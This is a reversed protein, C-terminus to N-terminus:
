SSIKQPNGNQTAELDKLITNVVTTAFFESAFPKAGDSRLFANIREQYNIFENESMAKLFMYVSATDKFRRRDIFCDAPIHKEINNAGWYVPVCGSFFCDFIKETIYGPLERVNEYCIAFRTDALVPKKHKLRGRYSPFPRSPIIRKIVKWLHREIRGKLGTNPVPMDWDTGYLDFDQPKNREFWRIAAVREAYLIRKDRSELTRNGAILCCFRRRGSFGDAPHVSIPNPYNIKIFRNGDVLDDNWTFIKKYKKLEVPDANRPKVFETEFMLLYSDCVNKSSQVDQHIEFALLQHRQQDATDIQIGAELFRAKLLIYPAFCDDRNFESASDFIRNKVLGNGRLLAIIM